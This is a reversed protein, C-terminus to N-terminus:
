GDVLRGKLRVGRAGESIAFEIFGAPAKKSSGNNLYKLYPVNNTIWIDGQKYSAAVRTMSMQPALSDPTVTERTMVFGTAPGDMTMQWNARAWGTDVPTSRLLNNDINLATKLVLGAVNKQVNVTRTAIDDALKNFDAM